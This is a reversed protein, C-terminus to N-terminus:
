SYHKCNSLFILKSDINEPVYTFQRLLAKMLENHSLINVATSRSTRALRILIKICNLKTSNELNLSTFIYSFHIM